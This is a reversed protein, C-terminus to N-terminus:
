TVAHIVFFSFYDSRGMQTQRDQEARDVENKQSHKIALRHVQCQMFKSRYSWGVKEMRVM